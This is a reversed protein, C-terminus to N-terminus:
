EEYFWSRPDDEPEAEARLVQIMEERTAQMSVVMHDYTFTPPVPHREFISKLEAGHAWEMFHWRQRRSLWRCRDLWELALSYYEETGQHAATQHRSQQWIYDLMRFPRNNDELSSDVQDAEIDVFGDAALKVYWERKLALFDPTEYKSAMDHELERPETTAGSGSM